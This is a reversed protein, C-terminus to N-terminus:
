IFSKNKTIDIHTNPWNQTISQICRDMVEQLSTSTHENIQTMEQELGCPLIADFASLNTDVNISFGHYTRNNKIRLGISAIKRGNVYIGRNKRNSEAHIDFSRLCDIIIKDIRKVLPSISQLSPLQIMLYCILQGPGHYTIKGGRDTDVIPHPLRQRIEDAKSLKGRTYVAPHQLLWIQDTDLHKKRSLVRMASLSEAYEVLGKQHIILNQNLTTPNKELRNEEGFTSHNKM